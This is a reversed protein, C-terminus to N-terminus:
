YAGKGTIVAPITKLLLYFDKYLSQSYLYEEDLLVQQPFPIDSRGSVQWICTLGPKAYLRVREEITYQEVESPLAPRPGVLSMDGKLINWLQPLEDISLRRIIRGTRTIRPDHKMKFIVGGEMENQAELEARRQDADIYMSRFKWLRFLSGRFGVRTQMYFVPGKSELRILLSVTAFLPSLLLLLTASVVIDMLRKIANGALGALNWLLRRLRIMHTRMPVFQDMKQYHGLLSEEEAPTVKLGRPVAGNRKKQQWARKMFVFNGVLYRRWMRGPEQVLRWVWELGIERLWVPARSINGSYFDFLGGVGLMIKPDLKTRHKEIWTEQRPAGLAVFLVSAGSENIKDIVEQESATDFYGDHCGAIDLKPYKECMNEAVSEAVGPKAGLLFIGHGSQALRECLRPFLDTGNINDALGNNFLQAALRVGIGDPYVRDLKRLTLHYDDDTYAKNLCDANVFGITTQRDTTIQGLIWDVCEQMTSNTIRIGFLHLDEASELEKVPSVIGALLSRLIITFYRKIGWDSNQNNSTVLYEVGLSERLKQDSFLPPRTSEVDSAGALTFKGSLVSFLSALGAGPFSGAFRVPITKSTDIPRMLVHGAQLLAILSRALILPSSMILGSGSLFIDVARQGKFSLPTSNVHSTGSMDSENMTEITDIVSTNM